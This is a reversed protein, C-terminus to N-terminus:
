SATAPNIKFNGNGDDTLDYTLKSNDATDDDMAKVPRGVNTGARM